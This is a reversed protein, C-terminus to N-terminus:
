GNGAGKQQGKLFTKMYFLLDSVSFSTSAKKCRGEGGLPSNKKRGHAFRKREVPYNGYRNKIFCHFLDLKSEVLSKVGKAEEYLNENM